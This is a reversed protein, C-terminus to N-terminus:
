DLALYKVGDETALVLRDGWVLMDVIDKKIDITKVYTGDKKNLVTIVDAWTKKAIERRTSLYLHDGAMVMLQGGWYRYGFTRAFRVGRMSGASLAGDEGKVDWIRKGEVSDIASVTFNSSAYITDGDVVIDGTASKDDGIEKRLVKKFEGKTELVAILSENVNGDMTIDYSGILMNGKFLIPGAVINTKGKSDVEIEEGNPGLRYIKYFYGGVFNGDVYLPRPRYMRGAYENPLMAPDLDVKSITVKGDARGYIQFTQGLVVAVSSPTLCPPSIRSSPGAAQWTKTGDPALMGIISPAFELKKPMEGLFIWVSTKSGIIEYGTYAIGADDVAIERVGTPDLPTSWLVKGDAAVAAIGNVGAVYLTGGHEIFRTPQGIASLDPAAPAAMKPEVVNTHEVKAAFVPGGLALM